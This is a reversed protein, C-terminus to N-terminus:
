QEIRRSFFGTYIVDKSATNCEGFPFTHENLAGLSLCTMEIEGYHEDIIGDRLSCCIEWKKVAIARESLPLLLLLLSRRRRRMMLGEWGVVM